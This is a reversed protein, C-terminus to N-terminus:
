AWRASPTRVYHRYLYRWPLVLPVLVVGMACAFLSERAYADLGPGAWMPLAFAVIWIVKWLLEFILLPLMQLPYRLGLLAVLALAGLLSRVVSGPNAVVSAPAIISPWITIGLGVAILLYMARLLYLRFLSVEESM